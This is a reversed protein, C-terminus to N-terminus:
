DVIRHIRGRGNGNTTYEQQHWYQYWGASLTIPAHEEHVLTATEAIVHVYCAGFVDRYLKVARRKLFRHRHGSAEGEALVMGRIPRLLTTDPEDECAQVLVDGHRYLTM